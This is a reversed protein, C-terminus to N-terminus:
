RPDPGIYLRSGACRLHLMLFPPLAMVLSCNLGRRLERVRFYDCLGGPEVRTIVLAGNGCRGVEDPANRRVPVDFAVIICRCSGSGHGPSHAVPPLTMRSSGLDSGRARRLSSCRARASSNRSASWEWRSIVSHWRAM